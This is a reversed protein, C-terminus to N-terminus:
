PIFLIKGKSMDNLYQKLAEVPEDLKYKGQIDTKMEGSIFMQQLQDRIKKFSQPGKEAIWNPLNFGAVNKNHFIIDLIDIGSIRQSSLGGYVLLESEDPMASMITGSLEGAAADIATTANLTVALETLKEKLNESGSFLIHKEGEEKLAEIGKERRVINIVNINSKRTLVRIFKAVQGGAADIIIATSKNFKVREVLGYATFPNIAFCAAQEVPIKDSVPICNAYNTILYQAWTGDTNEQTFCSVRKNLLSEAERKEGCAIVKGTGEFGPVAPTPKNMNYGNRIFAIDAPNCPSAEIKILTEDEKLKRLSRDKVQLTLLARVINNNYEPIVIAKTKEPIQM